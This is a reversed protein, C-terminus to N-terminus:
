GQMNHIKERGEGKARIIKKFFAREGRGVWNESERKLFPPSNTPVIHIGRCIQSIINAEKQSNKNCKSKKQIFTKITKWTQYAKKYPNEWMKIVLHFVLCAIPEIRRVLIVFGHFSTLGLLPSRLKQYTLIKPPKCVNTMLSCLEPCTTKSIAEYLTCVFM